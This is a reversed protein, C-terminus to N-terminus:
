LGKHFQMDHSGALLALCVALAMAVDLSGVAALFVAQLTFMALGM